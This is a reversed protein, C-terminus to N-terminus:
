VPGAAGTNSGTGGGIKMRSLESASWTVSCRKQVSAVFVMEAIEANCTCSARVPLSLEGKRNHAYTLTLLSAPGNM